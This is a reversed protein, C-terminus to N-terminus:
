GEHVARIEEEALVMCRRLAETQREHDMCCPGRLSAESGWDTVIFGCSALNRMLLYQVRAANRAQTFYQIGTITHAKPDQMRALFSKGDRTKRIDGSM